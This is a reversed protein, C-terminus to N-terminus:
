QKEENFWKTLIRLPKTIRWSRSSLLRAHEDRLHAYDEKLRECIDLMRVFFETQAMDFCLVQYDLVLRRPEMGVVAWEIQPDDTQFGYVGSYSQGNCRLDKVDHVIGDETIISLQHIQLLCNVNLPDVRLRVVNHFDVMDFVIKRRFGDSSLNELPQLLKREESFGDQGREQVYCECFYRTAQPVSIAAQVAAPMEAKNRLQFVYQYADGDSRCRLFRAVDRSVMGYNTQVEIRGVPTCNAEEVVVAYGLQEVMERFSRRTFLHIHTNDLLGLPTYDFINNMLGIIIANHAVNPVSVLVSGNQTLLKSCQRLAASPHRLHELVDAFIIYDYRHDRVCEFWFGADIDGDIPGLCAVDAYVAAIKGAEADIEVIDVTCGLTEKLYRTLRGSAPGFELVRGGASLHAVIMSLSNRTELDLPADYKSM